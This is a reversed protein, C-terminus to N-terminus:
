SLKKLTTTTWCRSKKEAFVKNLEAMMNGSKPPALPKLKNPTSPVVSPGGATPKEQVAKPAEENQQNKLNKQDFGRIEALLNAPQPKHSAGAGSASAKGTPPPPVNGGPPPPFNGTPPPPAGGPPQPVLKPPPTPKNKNQEHAGAIVSTLKNTANVLGQKQITKGVPPPPPIKNPPTQLAVKRKNIEDQTPATGTKVPSHLDFTTGGRIVGSSSRKKHKKKKKGAGASDEEGQVSAQGGQSPPIPNSNSANPQDNLFLGFLQLLSIFSNTVVLKVQFLFLKTFDITALHKAFQQDRIKKDTPNLKNPPQAPGSSSSAAAPAVGVVPNPM